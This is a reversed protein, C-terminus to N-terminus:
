PGCAGLIAHKATTVRRLMLPMDVSRYLSCRHAGDLQQISHEGTVYGSAPQSSQMGELNSAHYPLSVHTM